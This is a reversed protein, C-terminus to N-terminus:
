KVIYDSKKREVTKDFRTEFPNETGVKEVDIKNPSMYKEITSDQMEQSDRSSFPTIEHVREKFFDRGVKTTDINSIEREIESSSTQYKANEPEKQKLMDYRFHEGRDEEPARETRTWGVDQIGEIKELVPTKIDTIAPRVFEQFQEANFEPEEDSIEELRSEFEEPRIERIKIESKKQSNDKRKKEEKNKGRKLM